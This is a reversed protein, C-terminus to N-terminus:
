RRYPLALVVRIRRRAGDSGAAPDPASALRQAAIAVRANIEADAQRAANEVQADIVRDSLAFRSAGEAAVLIASILLAGKMSRILCCSRKLPVM